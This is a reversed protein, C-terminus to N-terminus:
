DKFPNRPVWESPQLFKMFPKLILKSVTNQPKIYCILDHAKAGVTSKIESATRGLNISSKKQLIAEEIFSYLITQYLDYEKNLDYDFGIYHAELETACYFGSSFSVIQEHNFWADIYFSNPQAVAIDKFYTKSLPALKFKAHEFVQLYLAYLVDNYTEIESINLRTKTLSSSAKLINKGRNRYKKSFSNIYDTLSQINQPLSIIMNPEVNFHIFKRCCWCDKDGFGAEYFDKVLIVSIKGSLKEVKTVCDIVGELLKFKIKKDNIGIFFGHEGSIFNNGCTILRMITENQNQEIYKKFVSAKKSQLENIHTSTLESFLTASFDNIQFYIVGVPMLSEYVIVYRFRFSETQQQQILSLYSFSLFINKNQIVSDWENKQALNINEFCSFTYKGFLKKHSQIKKKTFFKDCISFM